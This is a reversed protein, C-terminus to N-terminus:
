GAGVRSVVAPVTRLVIYLDLGLSWSQVYHADMEARLRYGVKSRGSIQWLGSVGPNAALYISIQDGYHPIESEVIPRPGVLSMEGRLVNLLQPIEDLSWRRLFRGVRTVRPDELDKRMRWELRRGTQATGRVWRHREANGYMSRFKWIRFPCGGRGVREERYFVPGPSTLLIAAAILLGPIALLTFLVLALIFEIARKIYRYRWSHVPMVRDPMAEVSFAPDLPPAYMVGVAIAEECVVRPNGDNM